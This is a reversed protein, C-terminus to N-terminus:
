ILDVLIFEEDSSAEQDTSFLEEPISELSSEHREKDDEKTVALNTGGKLLREVEQTIGKILPVKKWNIIKKEVTNETHDSRLTAEIDAPDITAAKKYITRLDEKFRELELKNVHNTKQISIIKFM